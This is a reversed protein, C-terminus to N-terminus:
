ASPRHQPLATHSKGAGPRPPEFDNESESDEEEEEEESEDQSQRRRKSTDEEGSVNTAEEREEPEVPSPGRKTGASLAADDHEM